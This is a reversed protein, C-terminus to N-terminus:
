NSQLEVAYLNGDASGVYLANGAVVPSSVISGLTYLRNMADVSTQYNALDKGEAAYSFDLNNNKLVKQANNKRADFAFVDLQRGSAIDIAFLQGTFDGFYAIKNAIAPKNYIYGNAKVRYLEKGTQKNVAIFSYSDSTSFFVANDKLNASAVVWSSEADFKWVLTGTNANLAYFFADRTGIYILSDDAVPAGQIGELVHYTPQENTKFKWQIAGNKANIAYLNFDWSGIYVVGKHLLPAAHIPGGTALKWAITGRTADLAYVNGDSSGFCVHGNASDIAPSSLFFDFPDDMYLSDPKMTWLGKAGIHREGGTQFRWIERGNKANLAYYCGDYSGFFVRNNYVTASSNVKGKTSFKWRLKGNNEDIAYLCSDESGIYVVGNAIVPTSFIKGKTQFRWKIAKFVQATDGNGPKIFRITNAANTQTFFHVLTALLVLPITKKM